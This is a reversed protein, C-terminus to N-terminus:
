IGNLLTVVKERIYDYSPKAEQKAYFRLGDIAKFLMHCRLREEFYIIDSGVELWLNRVKQPFDLHPTWLHLVGLDFMFDGYMALEWDVLGTVRNGDSLMNWLHFDGHVLYPKGPSYKSLEMMALYGEQFLSKELFSQKYLKTWDKYFGEQDERFFGALVEGWSKYSALGNPFILGFGKSSEIDIHSMNTFHKAVDNIIINQESASYSSIPKGKIKDSISFFIEDIKGTKVVQPILLKDGHAKYMYDAKIFSEENNRFHVVYCKDKAMFSFVKSLQGMEISSVQTVSEDFVEKLIEEAQNVNMDLKFSKLM